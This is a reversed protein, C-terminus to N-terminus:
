CDIAYVNCSFEQMVEDIESDIDTRTVMLAEQLQMLAQEEDGDNDELASEWEDKNVEYTITESASAQIEREKIITITNEDSGSDDEEDDLDALRNVIAEYATEIGELYAPSTIDIGACFHALTIAELADVSAKFAENDKVSDDLMDSTISAGVSKNNDDFTITIGFCNTKLESM